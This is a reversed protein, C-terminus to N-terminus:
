LFFKLFFLLAMVALVAFSGYLLANMKMNEWWSLVKVEKALGLNSETIVEIEQLEEEEEKLAELKEMEKQLRDEVKGTAQTVIRQNKALIDSKAQEFGRVEAEVKDGFSTGPAGPNVGQEAQDGLRHLVPFLSREKKADCNAACSVTVKGNKNLTFFKRNNFMLATPKNLPAKRFADAAALRDSDEASLPSDGPRYVYVVRKSRQDFIFLLDVKTSM